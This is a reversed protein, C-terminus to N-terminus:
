HISTLVELAKKMYERRWDFVIWKRKCDRGRFGERFEKQKIVLFYNYIHAEVKTNCKEPYDNKLELAVLM